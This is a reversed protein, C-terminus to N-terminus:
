DAFRLESNLKLFRGMRRAEKQIANRVTKSLQELPEVEIKWLDGKQKHSWVGIVRGNWLVVPSIWGANRYVRKYNEPTVLHDKEDHALLYPDFHPLLRLTRKRSPSSHIADLDNRLLFCPAGAVTVEVVESKLATWAPEGDGMTFGTWKVFDHRTAPGYAHLYRRLLEGKAEVENVTRLKKLWHDSRVFVSEQGEDPAYCVRGEIVAQRMVSGWALTFWERTSKSLRVRSFVTKTIDSKTMPGGDLAVIVADAVRRQEKEPVGQNIQYQKLKRLRSERLATIYIPYDGSPIVHLTGRMLWAKVLSRENWLAHRIDDITTGSTRAAAQLEAASMVQAQFGCISRCRDRFDTSETTTLGHRALRYAHVQPWTLGVGSPNRVTM